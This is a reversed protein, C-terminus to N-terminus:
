TYLVVLNSFVYLFILKLFSFSPTFASEAKCLLCRVQDYRSSKLHHDVLELNLRNKEQLAAHLKGKQFSFFQNLSKDLSSFSRWIIVWTQSHTVYTHQVAFNWVLSTVCSFLFDWTLASGAWGRKHSHTCTSTLTHLYAKRYSATQLVFGCSYVTVRWKTQPVPLQHPSSSLHFPHSFFGPITRSLLLSFINAPPIFFARCSKVNSHCSQWDLGLFAALHASGWSSILNFSMSSPLFFSQSTWIRDAQKMTWMWLWFNDHQQHQLYELMVYDYWVWLLGTSEEEWLESCDLTIESHSVVDYCKMSSITTKLMGM